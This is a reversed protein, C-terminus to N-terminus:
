QYIIEIETEDSIEEHTSDEHQLGDIDCRCTHIIISKIKSNDINLKQCSCSKFEVFSLSSFDENDSIL